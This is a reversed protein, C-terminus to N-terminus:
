TTGPTPSPVPPWPTKSPSTGSRSSSPMAPTPSGDWPKKGPFNAGGAVLLSTDAGNGAQVAGPDNVMALVGSLGAGRKVFPGYRGNSVVNVWPMPTRPDAIAFVRGGDEFQGFQNALERRDHFRDASRHAGHFQGRGIPTQALVGQACRKRGPRARNDDIRREIRQATDEVAGLKFRERANQRVRIGHRDAVLDVFVENEVSERM